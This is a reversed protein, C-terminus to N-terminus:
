NLRDEVCQELAQEMALDFCWLQNYVFDPLL